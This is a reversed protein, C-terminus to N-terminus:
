HNESVSALLIRKSIWIVLMLSRLARDALQVCLRSKIRKIKWQMKGVLAEKGVINKGSSSCGQEASHEGGAM